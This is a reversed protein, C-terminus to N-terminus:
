LEQGESEMIGCAGVGLDLEVDSAVPLAVIHLDIGEDLGGVVRRM